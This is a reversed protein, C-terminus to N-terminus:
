QPASDDYEAILQLFRQDGAEVRVEIRQSVPQGDHEVWILFRGPPLVLQYTSRATMYSAQDLTAVLRRAGDDAVVTLPELTGRLTGSVAKYVSGHVIGQPRGQVLNELYTLDAAAHEALRTRTCKHTSLLRGQWSGYILWREGARFMFHCTTPPGGGYSVLAPGDLEGVFVREPEIFAPPFVPPGSTGPPPDSTRITGLVVVDARAAITLSSGAGPPPPGCSCADAAAPTLWAVVTALGLFLLRAPM